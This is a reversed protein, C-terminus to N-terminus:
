LVSETYPINPSQVVLMPMRSRPTMIAKKTVEPMKKVSQTIPSVMAVPRQTTPTSPFLTKKPTAPKHTKVPIKANKVEADINEDSLRKRPRVNCPSAGLDVVHVAPSHRQLILFYCGHIFLLM